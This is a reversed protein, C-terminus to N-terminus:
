VKQTISVYTRYKADKLKFYGARIIIIEGLQRTLFQM